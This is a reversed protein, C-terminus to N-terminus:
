YGVSECTIKVSTLTYAYIKNTQIKEEDTLTAFTQYSISDFDSMYSLSGAYKKHKLKGSSSDSSILLEVSENLEGTKVTNLRSIIIDTKLNYYEVFSYNGSSKTHKGYFYSSASDFKFEYTGLFDVTSLLYIYSGTPENTPTLTIDGTYKTVTKISSGFQVIKSYTQSNVTYVITIKSEGDNRVIKIGDENSNPVDQASPYYFVADVDVSYTKSLNTPEEVEFQVANGMSLIITDAVDAYPTSNQLSVIPLFSNDGGGSIKLIYKDVSKKYLNYSSLTSDIKSLDYFGSEQDSEQIDIAPLAMFLETNLKNYNALCTNMQTLEEAQLETKSYGGVLTQYKTQNNLITTYFDFIEKNTTAKEFGAVVSTCGSLLLIPCLLFVFFALFYKKM